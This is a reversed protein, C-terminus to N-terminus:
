LAQDETEPPSDFAGLEMLQKIFSEVDADTLDKFERHAGTLLASGIEPRSALFGDLLSRRDESSEPMHFDKKFLNSLREEYKKQAERLPAQQYEKLAKRFIDRVCEAEKAPDEGDERAEELVEEDSMEWESEGLANMVNFLEAEYNRPKNPM